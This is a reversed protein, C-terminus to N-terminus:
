GFGVFLRRLPRSKSLLWAAATACAATFAFYFVIKRSAGLSTGALLRIAADLFLVHCLYIGYSLKSLRGALTCVAKRAPCESGGGFLDRALLFVAGTELFHTLACGDSFWLNLKEPSSLWYNGLVDLVVSCAGGGYLLRKVWPPPTERVLIYGMIFYGVRGDIPAGFLDIQVFPLLNVLPLISAPILVVLLFLLQERLGCHDLARKLFPLILYISIIKYVFWLHYKSGRLTLLETLFQAPDPIRGQLVANELFYVIDWCLFPVLLRKLRKAYFPLADLTQDNPLLLAGSLVFFIALGMRFVSGLIDCIWWVATGFMSPTALTGSTCHGLIVLYMGLCRLVDMYALNKRGNEVM